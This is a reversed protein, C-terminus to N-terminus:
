TAGPSTFAPLADAIEARRELTLNAARAPGGKKRTASAGPDVGSEEPTPERDEVRGTLIDFRLKGLQNTDRPRRVGKPGRPM